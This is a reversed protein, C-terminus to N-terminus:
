GGDREEFDERLCREVLDPDLNYTAPDIDVFVPEAGCYRIANATAIYSHSATLVVDGPGVGAALLSLHLACTCNAVACAFKAGTYELFVSEFEAVRPGQTVWGSLVAESAARAEPEGLQPVMFPIERKVGMSVM